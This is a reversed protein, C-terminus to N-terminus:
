KIIEKHQKWHTLDKELLQELKTIDKKFFTNLYEITKSSVNINEPSIHSTNTNMDIVKWRLNTRTKEPILKRLMKRVIFNRVPHEGFAIKQFTKNKVKGTKNMSKLEPYFTSDVNLFDFAEKIIKDPNSKIDEYFCVHLQQKNFYKLFTSIQKYYLGHHLYTCESQVRIDSSQLRRQELEIAREFGKTEYNFKKAYRYASIARDIPHRLVLIFKAKPQHHCIRKLAKEFFIYHVSGQLVIKQNKYDDNYFDNLHSLGQNYYEDRTFFAYDKVSLPACIEPHQSLWYYLSTTAAKQAGILFTNPLLEAM